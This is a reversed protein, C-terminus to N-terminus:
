EVKRVRTKWGANSLKVMGDHASAYDMPKGYVIWERKEFDYYEIQWKM